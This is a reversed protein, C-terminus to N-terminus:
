GDLDPYLCLRTQRVQSTLLRRSYVKATTWAPSFRILLRRTAVWIMATPRTSIVPLERDETWTYTISVPVAANLCADTYNATWTQTYACGTNHRVQPPLLPRSYVKATIWAPSSRLLLRRTAVWIMATLRTSIVPLEHDVTWTYTISVPVAANPCADTYNATWTQMHAPVVTTHRVQPTVIPTFVGECNDLGTFVPDIVTPNCGLDHSNAETSIVPLELDETWTYTISVRFLSM